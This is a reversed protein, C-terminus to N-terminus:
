LNSWLTDFSHNPNQEALTKERKHIVSYFFQNFSGSHEGMDTLQLRMERDDLELNVEDGRAFRESPILLSAPQKITKIGPLLLAEIPMLSNQQHLDPNDITVMLTKPALLQIGVELCENERNQMWRIIGVKWNYENGEEIRLALLEGVQANSGDQQRWLLRYGGASSDMIEWSQWSEPRPPPTPQSDDSTTKESLVSETIVNGNAVMDWVDHSNRTYFSEDPPIVYAEQASREQPQLMLNLEEHSAKGTRDNGRNNVDDHIARTINMLGVAVDVQNRQDARRFRRKPNSTLHNLLRKSLDTSLVSRNVIAEVHNTENSQIKAQLGEILPGLDLYRLPQPDAHETISCYCPPADGGLNFAYVNGKADAVHTNHVMCDNGRQEFFAALKQIEGQYLRHPKALALLSTQIFVLLVSSKGNQMCDTDKVPVKLLDCHEAIAYLGYIDKWVSTSAQTYVQATTLMQEKLYHVAQHISRAYSKNDLRAEGSAVENAIIKYGNAMEALISQQLEFIKHTKPPLPFSRAVLYKHLNNLIIRATPRMLEMIELRKKVACSERNAQILGRYFLRTTEGINVLPLQKLWKKIKRPQVPFANSGIPDKNPIKLHMEM